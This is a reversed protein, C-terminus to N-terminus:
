VARSTIVGTALWWSATRHSRACRVLNDLQPKSLCYAVESVVILDFDEDPWKEPLWLRRVETNPTERVRARAAQVAMASGDSCLLQDCRTALDASLEGNACGPEFGNVHREAPLCGLTLARKRKEYWRSKFRWPNPNNHFMDDFCEATRPTSATMNSM